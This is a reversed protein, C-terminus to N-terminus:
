MRRCTQLLPIIYGKERSAHDHEVRKPNRVATNNEENDAGNGDEAHTNTAAARSFQKKRNAIHFKEDLVDIHVYTQDCLLYEYIQLRIETPLRAFFDCQLQQNLEPKTTKSLPGLLQKKIETSRSETCDSLSKRRRHERERRLCKNKLDQKTYRDYVQGVKFLGVYALVFPSVAVSALINGVDKATMISSQLLVTTGPRAAYGINLPHAATLSHLFTPSRTLNYHPAPMILKAARAEDHGVTRLETPYVYICLLRAV